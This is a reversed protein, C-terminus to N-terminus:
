SICKKIKALQVLDGKTKEFSTLLTCHQDSIKFYSHGFGEIMVFLDTSPLSIKGLQLLLHDKSKRYFTEIQVVSGIGFEEIIKLLIPEKHEVITDIQVFFEQLSLRSPDIARSMDSDKQAFATLCALIALVM